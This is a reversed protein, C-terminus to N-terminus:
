EIPDYRALTEGFARLALFGILAAVAFWVYAPLGYAFLTVVVAGGALSVVVYAVAHLGRRLTVSLGILAAVVAACLTALSDAASWPAGRLAEVAFFASPPVLAGLAATLAHARALQRGYLPAAFYMLDAVRLEAGAMTGYVIAVVWISPAFRHESIFFAAVVAVAVRAAVALVWSSRMHRRAIALTARAANM